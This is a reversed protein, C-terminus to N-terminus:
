SPETADKAKMIQALVETPLGTVDLTANTAVPPLDSAGGIAVKDGWKRPNWKALLKLRTDIQLRRHEIMDAETIEVGTAKSVSRTGIQPTDAIAMCEQAIAEEGLERARAIRASFDAHAEMWDYVTRWAPMNDDRCIERLPVGNAIRDCITNAVDQSFTSPRGRPKPPEAPAETKKRPM